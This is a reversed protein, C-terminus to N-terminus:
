KKERKGFPKRKPGEGPGFLPVGGRNEIFQNRIEVLDRSIDRIMEDSLHMGFSTIQELALLAPRPPAHEREVFNRRLQWAYLDAAQLPLFQKEDRFIPRNGAYGSFLDKTVEATAAPNKKLNDWFHIADAGLSGQEDFILDCQDGHFAQVRVFSIIQIVMHFLAFYPNDQASSRTPNRISKIWREFSEHLLSADVRIIAYKAISKALRLVRDDRNEVNWGKKKSFQGRFNEAETMKFYALGPPEDLLAQWEHSFAAWRQQTTVFGALIFIPSNPESGSDDSYAQLVM